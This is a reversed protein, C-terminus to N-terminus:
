KRLLLFGGVALAGIIIFPTLDTPKGGSSYLPSYNPSYDLPTNGTLFAYPNSAQLKAQELLLKNAAQQQKYQLASQTLQGATDFAKNIFDGWNFEGMGNLALRRGAIPRGTLRMDRDFNMDNAGNGSNSVPEAYTTLLKKNEAANRINEPNELILNTLAPVDSTSKAQVITPKIPAPVPATKPAAVPAVIPVCKYVGSKSLEGRTGPGCTLSAM